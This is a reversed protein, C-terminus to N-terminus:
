AAGKLKTLKRDIALLSKNHSKKITTNEDQAIAEKSQVGSVTLLLVAALLLTIKLAKM